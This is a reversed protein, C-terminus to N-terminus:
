AVQIDLLKGSLTATVNGKYADGDEVYVTVRPETGSARGFLLYGFGGLLVVAAVAVLGRWRLGSRRDPAEPAGSLELLHAPIQLDATLRSLDGITAAHMATATRAEHEDVGLQGDNYAADLLTCAQSRDLDRARTTASSM